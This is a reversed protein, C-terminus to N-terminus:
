FQKYDLADLLFKASQMRLAYLYQNVKQYNVPEKWIDVKTMEEVSSFMRDELHLLKLLSVLRSDKGNHNLIAAFNKKYIISFAVGHFSDTLIFSSGAMRRVWQNVSPNFHYKFGKKPYNHNLLLLPLGIQRSVEPAYLWFDNTKNLKYCVIEEREVVNGTIEPYNDHLLTPDLVIAADKHFTENLIKAGEFERVSIAYFRDFCQQVKQTSAYESPEWHDLGFSSAYSIRKVDEPGFDLFYALARDRCITSNWVQDSGVIYYNSVPPNRRLEELNLYHKSISPYFKTFIKKIRLPFIISKAIRIFLPSGESITKLNPESHRIDVIEVQYGHEKLFRCLAYTQMVAGVNASCHYTVLSIKNM